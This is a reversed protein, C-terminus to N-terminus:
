KDKMVEEERESKRKKQMEEEKSEEKGKTEKTQGESKQVEEIKRM